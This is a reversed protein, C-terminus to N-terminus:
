VQAAARHFAISARYCSLDAITARRLSFLSLVFKDVFFNM